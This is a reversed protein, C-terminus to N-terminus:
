ASPRLRWPRPPLRIQLVVVAAVLSAVVITALAPAFSGTVDRLYGTAPVGIAQAAVVFPVLRSAIAGFHGRGFAEAVLSAQLTANGGMAYGYLVVYCTLLLPGRAQWLLLVGAAQLCFCIAAVRRQDFRDLLAGFGLKGIVGMAATAGLVLSARTAPMGRDVLLPIQYLLVGALGAMTLGFAVALLWFSAQRVAVDPRVSQELERAVLALSAQARDRSAPPEGDPVLGLDAPDRRMFALVPPLVVILVLAALVEYARRWGVHAILYQALPALVIGGASIGATAIGLARGRRVVFWRAVAANNPLAGICTSGLAVPGALCAYLAPLSRVQSLLFFGLAMACAGLTQVPRAGRRDVIRGVVLGYAAAAFQTFSYGLAVAARGGFESALPTLFVSWAYFMLGVNVAHCVFATAVIWWGHFIRPYVSPVIRRRARAAGTRTMLALPEGDEM